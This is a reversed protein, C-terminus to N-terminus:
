NRLMEVWIRREAPRIELNMESLFNMGVLGDIGEHEGLKAVNIPFKKAAARLAAFRAVRVVYGKEEGTATLIRSTAVRDAQRYGLREAISPIVTTLSSGTDVVFWGTLEKLPGAVSARVMMLDGDTVFQTPRKQM